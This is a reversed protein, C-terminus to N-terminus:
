FGSERILVALVMKGIREVFAMREGAIDIKGVVVRERELDANTDTPELLIRYTAKEPIYTDNNGLRVAIDGGLASAHLPEPLVRLNTEDIRVVKAQFPALEWENPYFVANSGVQFRSLSNEDSYAIIQQRENDIIQVLPTKKDVWLGAKTADSFQAVKGSFPARVSLQQYVDLAGQYETQLELGLQFLEAKKRNEEINAGTRSIQLKVLAIDRRLQNLVRELNSSRLEFLLEGEKVQSKHTIYVKSVQAIIPPFIMSSQQAAIHGPLTITSRWPFIFLGVLLAFVSFTVITNTNLKMDKRRTWWHSIEKLIPLLIFWHIEIIFLVIGLLKFFLYYVLFAIGLFLFFRYIWTAFSYVVLFVQTGTLFVEPVPDRFGFLLERLWWRAQAFARPQLNHIGTVDALIYYGDFRLFPNTNIAVTIVWSTTAVFFMASRLSGDELFNWFFLAISALALEATMGAISINLRQRHKKLRWGDTVDTYLLPFMVMFAIGMTSIKCGYRKAVFAHGLEHIIKTCVLTIGYFVLGQWTFFHLFTALFTDWQRLTLFLGSIAMFLVCWMTIPHFVWKILPYTAHLFRDPRVLPIRFFLYHHVVKKFINQKSARFQDLLGSSFQASKTELLNNVYLFQLMEKILEDDVDILTTERLKNALEKSDKVQPWLCLMKFGAYYLNFYRNRIPDYILWNLVGNRAETGSLLKLDERLPPLPTPGEIIMAM